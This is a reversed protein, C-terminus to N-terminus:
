IGAPSCGKINIPGNMGDFIAHVLYNYLNPQEWTERSKSESHFEDYLNVHLM